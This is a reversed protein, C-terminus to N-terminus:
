TLLELKGSAIGLALRIKAPASPEFAHLRIYAIAPGYDDCTLKEPMREIDEPNVLDVILNIPLCPEAGIKVIGLGRVELLGSITDPASVIVQDDRIDLDCRDDAILLAGQDMLRLALDSKGSGAEGRILIGNFNGQAEISVATGHVQM